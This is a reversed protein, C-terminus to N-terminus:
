DHDHEHDHDHDEHDDQEHDGHEHNDHSDHENKIFRARYFRALDEDFEEFTIIDAQPDYGADYTANLEDIFAEADPRDAFSIPNRGMIDDVHGSDVVRVFRAETADIMDELDTDANFGTVWAREVPESPGGFRETFSLYAVMCGVTDFFARTGDAHVLQTNWEPWEGPIMNCVPCHKGEPFVEPDDLALEREHDKEGEDDTELDANNNGTGQDPEGGDEACGALSGMTGAGLVSIMKRRSLEGAIYGM